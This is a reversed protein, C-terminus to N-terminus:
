YINTTRSYDEIMCLDVGRRVLIYGGAGWGSGWSNRVVWYDVGKLTGYGVVNMAHANSPVCTTDYFVGSKYNFFSSPLQMYVSLIRRSALVTKMTDVTGAWEVYASSNVQAGISMTSTSFRCTGAVAKYPYYRETAQGGNASLYQWAEHEWGGSCGNVRSCDVLQQESLDRATGGAKKCKGFEVVATASFTWCSGCRGQNRVASLCADTRYDISTPLQRSFIQRLSVRREPKMGGLRAQKEDETMTSFENHEMQFPAAANSNHLEIRAHTESFLSKRLGYESKTQVGMPFRSLYDQWAVELDDSAHLGAALVM